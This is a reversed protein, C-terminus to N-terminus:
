PTLKFVVGCGSDEIGCSFDGGYGTTGYLNGKSDQIVGQSPQTGDSCFGASCFRYLVTEKGTTSLRFVTGCQKAQGDCSLSGGAYTTGYLDGRADQIVGAQPGWGDPEGKFRYLVIEKDTPELKFVVGCGIGSCGTGGGGYTTGYLNGKADQIVGAYPSAGDAGGKFRHLVTEKGTADLKFVVGCGYGGCGIGGDGYTTGYLNGEADRIVGAYPSVGDAGGKFSHLVTEKGTKDLRFVVGCGDPPCAGVDGGVTTTGYLNGDADRIVGAIPNGGDAGGTFRHLVTEKGTNSVEFVTGCGGPCATDGGFYTTGYFNKQADQVVGSSPSAGDAGGKFSYLVTIKGSKSLKFVTGNQSAGGFLTTGYFDGNGDQLLANPNAGDNGAFRRLVKYTQAQTSRAAVVVVCAAAVIVALRPGKSRMAIRGSPIAIKRGVGFDASLTCGEQVNACQSVNKMKAQRGLDADTRHADTSALRPKLANGRSVVYLKEM